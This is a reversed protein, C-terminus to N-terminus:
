GPFPHFSYHFQPGFTDLMGKNSSVTPAMLGGGQAFDALTSQVLSIGAM